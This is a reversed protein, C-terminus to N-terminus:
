SWFINNGVEFLNPCVTLNEFSFNIRWLKAFSGLINVVRLSFM